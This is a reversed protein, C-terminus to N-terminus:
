HVATSYKQSIHKEKRYRERRVRPSLSPSLSLSLSSTCLHFPPLSFSTYLSLASSSMVLRLGKTLTDQEPLYPLFTPDLVKQTDRGGLPSPPTVQAWMAMHTSSVRCVNGHCSSGYSCAYRNSMPCDRYELPFPHPVAPLYPLYRM